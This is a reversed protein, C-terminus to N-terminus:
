DTIKRVKILTWQNMGSLNYAHHLRDQSYEGRHFCIPLLYMMLIGSEPDGEDLLHAEGRDSDGAVETGVSRHIIGATKTPPLITSVLPLQVGPHTHIFIDGALIVKVLYVLVMQTLLCLKLPCFALVREITRVVLVLLRLRQHLSVDKMKNLPLDTLM